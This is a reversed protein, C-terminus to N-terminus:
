TIHDNWSINCNVLDVLKEYIFQKKM